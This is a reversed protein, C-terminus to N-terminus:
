RSLFIIVLGSPLLLLPSFFRSSLKKESREGRDIAVGHNRQMSNTKVKKNIYILM